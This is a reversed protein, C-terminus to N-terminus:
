GHGGYEGDVLAKGGELGGECRALSLYTRRGDESGRECADM